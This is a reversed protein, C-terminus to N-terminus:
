AHPRKLRELTRCVADYHERTHAANQFTLAEYALVQETTSHVGHRLMQKAARVAGAPQRAIEAALNGAEPLLAEPAVVRNVLGIELAERADITRASLVLEAAKGHGILRPLFYSSGFEPTLGLRVFAFCFRAASSAIRVDCTLPMTAGFGVAPGNVAAIVPKPFESFAKPLDINAFTGGPGEKRYSEYRHKFMNLDGGASFARGTGTVVLVRLGDDAAARPLFHLLEARMEECLANLVQPRNLYLFGVGDKQEVSITEYNM